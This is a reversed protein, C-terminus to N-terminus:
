TIVETTMAPGAEQMSHVICVPYAGGNSEGQHLFAQDADWGTALCGKSYM